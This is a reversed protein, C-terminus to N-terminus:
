CRDHICETLYIIVQRSIQEAESLQGHQENASHMYPAAVNPVPLDALIGEWLAYYVHRTAPHYYWLCLLTLVNEALFCSARYLCDM